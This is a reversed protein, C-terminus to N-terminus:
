IAGPELPKRRKIAASPNREHIYDAIAALDNTARRTYRVKM